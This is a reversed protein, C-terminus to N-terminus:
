PATQSHCTCPLKTKSLYRHLRHVFMQYQVQLWRRNVTWRPGFFGSLLICPTLNVVEHWWGAPIYLVDGPELEVQFAQNKLPKETHAENLRLGIAADVNSLKAWADYKASVADIAEISGPALLYFRKRGRIQVAINDLLDYHLGTRANAPGIWSSNVGVSRPPFLATPRVDNLLEPFHRLLDFEKLYPLDNAVSYFNSQAAQCLENLYCGLRSKMFQTAGGERNGVVLQVERQPDLAALYEFRWRAIAPWDHALGRFVAPQRSNIVTPLTETANSLFTFPM